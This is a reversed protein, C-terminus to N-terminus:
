SEKESYAKLVRALASAPENLTRVLQAAPQNLLGLLQALLIERSPLSALSKIKAEDLLEGDLVGARLSPKSFEKEFTTVVKAAACVDKEGSIMMTQGSLSESLDPMGMEKTAIKVYSNKVVHCEAEVETLRKRLEEFHPVTLGGYDAIFLYPCADLKAVLDAVITKKDPNM